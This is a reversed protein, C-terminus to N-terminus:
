NTKDGYRKTNSGLSHKNKINIENDVWDPFKQVCGRINNVMDGEASNALEQCSSIHLERMFSYLTHAAVTSRVFYVCSKSFGWRQCILIHCFEFMYPRCCSILIMSMFFNVAFWIRPFSSGYLESTKM